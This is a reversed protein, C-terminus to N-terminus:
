PHRDSLYAWPWTKTVVRHWPHKQTQHYVAGATTYVLYSRHWLWHMVTGPIWIGRSTGLISVTQGALPPLLTHANQDHTMKAHDAKDQLYQHHEDAKPDTHFPQTPLRTKWSGCICCNHQHNYTLTKWHAAFHWYHSNLTKAETSLKQLLLRSSRWWQYQLDMQLQTILVQHIYTSIGVRRHVWYTCCRCIPTWQWKETHRTSWTWCINGRMQSIIAASTAGASPMKWVFCMKSYMVIFQGGDLDLLDSAVIQCPCHPTPQKELPLDCQRAQFCLYTNYSNIMGEIDKTM